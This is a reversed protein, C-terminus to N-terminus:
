TVVLQVSCCGGLVGDPSMGVGEQAAAAAAQGGIVDLQIVVHLLTANLGCNGGIASQDGNGTLRLIIALHLLAPPPQLGTSQRYM